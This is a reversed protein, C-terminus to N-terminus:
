TQKVDFDSVSTIQLNPGAGLTIGYATDGDPITYTMGSTITRPGTITSATVASTARTNYNITFNAEYTTTSSNANFIALVKIPTQQGGINQYSQVFTGVQWDKDYNHTGATFRTFGSINAPAYAKAQRFSVVVYQSSLVTDQEFRFTSVHDMATDTNPLLRFRYIMRNGNQTRSIFEAWGSGTNYTVSSTIATYPNDRYTSIFAIEIEQGATAATSPNPTLMRMYYGGVQQVYFTQEIGGGSFVVNGSRGSSNNALISLTASSAAKNVSVWDLNEYVNWSDVNTDVNVVQSHSGETLGTAYTPSIALYYSVPGDPWVQTGGVDIKTPTTNGVTIATIVNNGIEIMKKIFKKICM